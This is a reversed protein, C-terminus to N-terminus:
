DREVQQLRDLVKGVIEDIKTGHFHKKKTETSTNHTGSFKIWLFLILFPILNDETM